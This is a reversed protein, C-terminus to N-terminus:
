PEKSAYVPEWEPLGYLQPNEVGAVVYWRAGGDFEAMIGALPSGGWPARLGLDSSVSLRHFRPDETWCVVFPLRELTALDSAEGTTRGVSTDVFNPLYQAVRSV